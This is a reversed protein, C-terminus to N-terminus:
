RRRPPTGRLPALQQAVAQLRDGDLAPEPLEARTLQGGCRARSSISSPAFAASASRPATGGYSGPLGHVISTSNVRVAASSSYVRLGPTSSAPSRVIVDVASRPPLCPLLEKKALPREDDREAARGPLRVRRQRAASRPRRRATGRLCRRRRRNDRPRPTWPRRRDRRGPTRVGPAPQRVQGHRDVM